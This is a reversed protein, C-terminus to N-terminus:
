LVVGVFLVDDAKFCVSEKDDFNFNLDYGKGLGEIIQQVEECTYNNWMGQATSGDKFKFMLKM